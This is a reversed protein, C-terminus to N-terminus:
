EKQCWFQYMSIFSNPNKQEFIDWEDLNYLSQLNPFTNSFQNVLMQDEFGCFTLPLDLLIKKIEPLCFLHEQVNLVLDKFGSLSYFDIMELLFHYKPNNSLIIEDRIDKTAETNDTSSAALESRIASINRRALKSYLGIKILGGKKACNAVMRLGDVPNSMHHLVGVSEVIDFKQDLLHLDLIDAQMFKINKIQYEDAKRKAYSLSSLSLDIALVECNKYRMASEIAHRGTGCGAILVSIKGTATEGIADSNIRTIQALSRITTIPPPTISTWRPYPNEEYQTRVKKSTDDKISTLLPIKPAISHKEEIWDLVHLKKFTGLSPELDLKDSWPYTKLPKYTVLILISLPNPDVGKVLTSEIESELHRIQALEDDGVVYVYENIFCQSGLTRLFNTANPPAKNSIYAKLIFERVIVLLNELQIDPVVTSRLVKTLLTNKEMFEIIENIVKDSRIKEPHNLWFDVKPDTRTCDLALKAIQNTRCLKNDCLYELIQALRDSSEPRFGSGILAAINQYAIEHDPKMDLTEIYHEFARIRDGCTHFIIGINLHCEVLSSNIALSRRYITIAEDLINATQYMVGRYFLQTASNQYFIALENSLKFAEALEYEDIHRKLASIQQKTPDLSEAYIKKIFKLNKKSVGNKAAKKMAGSALKNLGLALLTSIYSLWYREINPNTILAQHFHELSKEPQQLFIGLRGMNYNADPHSPNDQLLSTLFKDGEMFNGADIAQVGKKLTLTSDIFM